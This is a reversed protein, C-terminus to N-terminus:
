RAGRVHENCGKTFERRMEGPVRRSTCMMEGEGRDGIEGVKTRRRM